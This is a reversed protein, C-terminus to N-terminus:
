SEALIYTVYPYDLHYGLKEALAVSRLDHADWGPYINRQLCELILRAGCVTALGNRRYEPKTDIEIEIGGHYVAYPSAGAVLKGQHLIATGVARKGYDGYDRFQSCLDVSWEENKAMEFIERDFLKLEYCCDLTEIYANLRKIDFIDPEKKIAYRFTKTVRNGYFDEILKEWPEGKPILLKAGHFATLLADNPNGAFFCFDGLEIVASAPNEENDLIINGMYGQLCSRILGDEWGHFLSAAKNKDINM